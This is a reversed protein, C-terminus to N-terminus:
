DRAAEDAATQRSVEGTRRLERRLKSDEPHGMERVRIAARRFAELDDGVLWERRREDVWLYLAAEPKYPFAEPLGEERLIAVSPEFVEDCWHAAARAASISRGLQQALRFGHAQIIQLLQTFAEPRLFDIAASPRVQALASEEMFLRKQQLYLLDVADTASTIEADTQIETVWADIFEISRHRAIAVRHHGDVVFYAESVKYVEIPPFVGEPFRAELSEWRRRVAESRPVFDRDFQAARGFSGAIDAVRISRLGLHSQNVCGCHDMVSEFELLAPRSRGRLRDVFRRWVARRRARPYSSTPDM